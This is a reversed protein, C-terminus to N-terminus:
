ESESHTDLYSIAVAAHLAAGIPLVEEDITFYPSHLGKIASAATKNQTGIFFFATAMKQSYFGFDEAAMLAPSHQVNNEGLLIEGVRKGHDYITPDNITPPYPRMEEMFDITASCQHVGAQTEIIEKIRQKLYSYGELTMFRFTGGFRVSAPIVNGAQGGDVFTVSVVRPELPDTERSVLQQLALVAMSAALMPDTTKHPTAAHGGKGQVVATFRSSGAMIPGPKSGITGVPMFPWVHLGFIAKFGDLAGEELMYSAGAYGEEAPQFVLKVTGKLKDRRNQILRAAGLLMTVHADHGCAHMKGDIKSKYEWEVLEQLPLADMDARLGFWPQAGSGITGVVGTKAVPWMYKVGLSDLENRILQSTQHEQFSLEPYEHIRRRVRRLWDLFEPQRASELLERTLSETESGLHTERDAASLNYPFSTSLLTLILILDICFSDM